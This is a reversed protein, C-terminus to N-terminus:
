DSKNTPRRIMCFARQGSHREISCDTELQIVSIAPTDTSTPTVLLKYKKGEEVTEVKIDFPGTAIKASLLKIPETHNMQVTIVETDLEEGVNWRLTKPEIGILVPVNIIAKLHISPKDEPDGELWLDIGKNVQGAFSGMDFTARITGTESPKFVRTGELTKVDVCSCYGDWKKITVTKDSTNTFAFDVEIKRESPNMQVKKETEKFELDAASVSLTLVLLLTLLKM